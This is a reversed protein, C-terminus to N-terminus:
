YFSAARVEYISTINFPRFEDKLLDFIVPMAQSQSFIVDKAGRKTAEEQWKKRISMSAKSLKSMKTNFQKFHQFTTNYLLTHHTPAIPQQHLTKSALQFNQSSFSHRFNHATERGERRKSFWFAKIHSIHCSLALNPL